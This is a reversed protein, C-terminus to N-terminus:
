NANENKIFTFNLYKFIVEAIIKNGRVNYHGFDNYINSDRRDYDQLNYDQIDVYNINYKELHNKIKDRYEYFFQSKNIDIDIFFMTIPVEYESEMQKIRKLSVDFCDWGEPNNKYQNLIYFSFNIKTSDPYRMPLILREKIIKVFELSNFYDKRTCQESNLIFKTDLDNLFFGVIIYDPDLEQLSYNIVASEYYTNMGGLGLNYVEFKENEEKLKKELIKPYSDELLVGEGFTFSDGVIVIRETNNDKPINFEYDGFGLSNIKRPVNGIKITYNPRYQFGKIPGFLSVPLYDKHHEEYNNDSILEAVFILLTTTIILVFINATIEKFKKKKM